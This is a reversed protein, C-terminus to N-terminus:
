SNDATITCLQIFHCTKKTNKKKNKKKNGAEPGKTETQNYHDHSGCPKYPSKQTALTMRWQATDSNSAQLYIEFSSSRCSAPDVVFTSDLSTTLM